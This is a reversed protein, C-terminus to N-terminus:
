PNPTALLNEKDARAFYSRYAATEELARRLQAALAPAAPSASRSGPGFRLGAEGRELLRIHGSAELWDLGLWVAAERQGTAAALAGLSLRGEGLRLAYKVLGALRELFAEATVAQPDVGFLYVRRPAASELAQRLEAPGPPSTWIALAPAPLLEYRSRGEIKGMAEAERWVQVEGESQLGQLIPLPHAEDRYDVVELPPLQSTLDVPAEPHLRADVYEIQLERRGRFAATHVTYALDFVGEPLPWDASQWWVLRYTAGTSDEVTLLRHEEGRGLSAISALRLDPSLLTLPPNGAGFPALRELDAALEISLEALPLHGDIQLASESPAEGRQITVARALRRRFEPIHEPQIALGAAMPHGGFGDLLDAQAAIAAHIDVGEVSRASGRGAEGPPTSLLVVPRNYRQALQGAVIGIVGAPWSPHALVLASAELLSPDQQVQALAGQLVQSTLLKRRANLGELGLALARAREVDPTTLLEVAPNADSLRGLANLRPALEFGIHDETLGAAQLGAYELIAQIGPRQAQRLVELGRQALYRTDGRLLAIDAIIGLAVLDLHEDPSPSGPSPFGAGVLAQALKYAVGAGPLTALPHDKPLFKPNV